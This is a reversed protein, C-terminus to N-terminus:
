LNEDLGEEYLESVREDNINYGCGKLLSILRFFIYKWTVSEGVIDKEEFSYIKDDQQLIIKLM